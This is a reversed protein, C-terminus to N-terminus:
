AGCARFDTIYYGKSPPRKTWTQTMLYPAFGANVYGTEQMNGQLDTSVM